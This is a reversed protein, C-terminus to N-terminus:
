AALRNAVKHDAARSHYEVPKNETCKPLVGLQTRELAREKHMCDKQKCNKRYLLEKGEPVNIARARLHSAEEDVVEGVDAHVEQKRVQKNVYELQLWDDALRDTQHNKRGHAEGHLAEPNKPVRERM